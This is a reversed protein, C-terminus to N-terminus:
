HKNHFNIIVSVIVDILLHNIMKSIDYSYHLKLCWGQYRM